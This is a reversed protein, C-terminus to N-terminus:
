KEAQPRRGGLSHPVQYSSQCAAANNTWGPQTAIPTEPPPGRTRGVRCDSVNDYIRFAESELDDGHPDGDHPDDRHTASKVFWGAVRQTGYVRARNHGIYPHM